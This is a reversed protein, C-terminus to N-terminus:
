IKTGCSGRVVLEVPMVIRKAPSQDGSKGLRSFLLEAALRGMSETPQRVITIGPRLLDATEFDDFGVLAIPEPPHFGLAQLSHMLYRTLLNNASFLATPPQKSNLRERLAALTDQPADSVMSIDARLGAEAMAETYGQQRRRMTYLSRSLRFFSIHEHGLGILHATGLQAGRKNQVLVRDFRSSKLPRDLTVVPLNEFERDLLNPTGESVISPIVMLGDVHFRMMRCAEDYETKPDEDSTAIVVSYNHEKAVVSISHVCTAFFSDYLNPVVIGIQRSTQERLSRAVENRRYQLQEIAQNVRKRTDDTVSPYHNLVRSVTMTSVDALKAVDSM